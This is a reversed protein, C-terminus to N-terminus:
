YFCSFTVKRRLIAISQQRRFGFWYDALQVSCIRIWSAMFNWCDILGVQRDSGRINGDIREYTYAKSLLYDELLDLMM